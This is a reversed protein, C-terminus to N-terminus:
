PLQLDHVWRRALCDGLVVLWKHLSFKRDHLRPPLLDNIRSGPQRNNGTSRLRHWGRCWRRRHLLGFKLNNIRSGALNDLRLHSQRHFLGVACVDSPWDHVGGNLRRILGSEKPSRSCGVVSFRLLARRAANVFRRRRGPARCQHGVFNERGPILCFARVARLPIIVAPRTTVLPGRTTGQAQKGVRWVGHVVNDGPTRRYRNRPHGQHRLCADRRRGGLGRLRLRRQLHDHLLLGRLRRGRYLLHLLLCHLSWFRLHCRLM